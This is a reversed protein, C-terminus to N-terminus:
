HFFQFFGTQKYTHINDFSKKENGGKIRTIFAVSLQVHYLTGYGEYVQVLFSRIMIQLRLVEIVRYRIVSTSFYRLPIIQYKPDRQVIKCLEAPIPM